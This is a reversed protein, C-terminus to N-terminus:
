EPGCKGRMKGCESQIHLSVSDRETNLRFAPFAPFNRVLIVGFVLVKQVTIHLYIVINELLFLLSIFAKLCSTGM